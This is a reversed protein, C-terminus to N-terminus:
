QNNCQQAASPSYGRIEPIWAFQATLVIPSQEGSDFETLKLLGNGTLGTGRSADGLDGGKIDPQWSLM